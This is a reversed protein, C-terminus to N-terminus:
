RACRALVADALRIMDAEENYVQGSIRAWLRGRAAHLQVEVRDQDHLAARLRYADASTSGAREPLPVTAMTGIMSEPPTFQTGWRDALAHAGEWALRHNYGRVREAGLESMWELGAPAALFASPDRTGVSDFEGSFGLGLGWSIVAPHLGAQREPAAWLIASSLPGWGWKHLNGTYWDVGLAPLELPIAGPGHAGDALVRVGRAGLGAAIEGLPFILASESTIHDVLALRTRPGVAALYADVVEGPDSPAYPLEIRRVEAGRREAVFSVANVVGGYSLDNVLVQDGPRLDFSRVVANAGTTANDVFVLDEARAGLFAAVKGAAVRLRPTEGVGPPAGVENLERLLFRAPHREIEDRIARQAALVRRPTVGVTGHNLYTLSPDLSWEELMAHGFPQM